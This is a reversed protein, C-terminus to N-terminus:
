KIMTLFVLKKITCHSTKNELYDLLIKTHHFRNNLMRAM